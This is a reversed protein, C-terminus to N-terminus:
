DEPTLHVGSLSLGRDDAMDAVVRHADKETKAEVRGTAKVTVDTYPVNGHAKYTFRAM